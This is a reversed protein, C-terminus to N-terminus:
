QDSPKKKRFFLIYGIAGTAIAIASVLALLLYNIWNSRPPVVVIEPTQTYTPSAQVPQILTKTFTPTPPISTSTNVITPTVTITATATLTVTSTTTATPPLTPVTQFDLGGWVVHPPIFVFLLLVGIPLLMKIVSQKNM